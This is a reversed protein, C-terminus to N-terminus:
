GVVAQDVAKPLQEISPKIECQGRKVKPQRWTQRGWGRWALGPPSYEIPAVTRAESTWGRWAGSLAPPRTLPASSNMITFAACSSATTCQHLPQPAAATHTPHSMRATAKAVISAAILATTLESNAPAVSGRTTSLDELALMSPARTRQDNGSENSGHHTYTQLHGEVKLDDSQTSLTLRLTCRSQETDLESPVIGIKAQVSLPRTASGDDPEGTAMPSSSQKTESTPLHQLAQLATLEECVDVDQHPEPGLRDYVPTSEVEMRLQEHTDGVLSATDIMSPSPSRPGTM